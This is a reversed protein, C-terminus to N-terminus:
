VCNCVPSFEPHNPWLGPNLASPRNDYTQTINAMSWNFIELDAFYAKFIHCSMLLEMKKGLFSPPWVLHDRLDKGM